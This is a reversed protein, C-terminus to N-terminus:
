GRATSDSNISQGGSPPAGEPMRRGLEEHYALDYAVSLLRSSLRTGGAAHASRALEVSARIIGQRAARGPIRRLGRLLAPRRGNERRIVGLFNIEPYLRSMELDARAYHRPISMWSAKTREAYHWGVAEMALVFGCGRRWLRYALEVDEARPFSENFGGAADFDCRRLLANGTFFQRWTPKYEGREMRRYQAALTEAEWRNWATPKWDAPALLPGFVVTQPGCDTAHAILRELWDAGPVVDDDIFVLFASHGEAAGLNRGAAPGRNGETRIFKLGRGPAVDQPIHGEVPERSGDDVVTVAFDGFTQAELGRLTALLQRPREFTPIVVQVMPQESM